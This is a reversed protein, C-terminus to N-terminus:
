GVAFSYISDSTAKPGNQKQHRKNLLELEALSGIQSCMLASLQSDDLHPFRYRLVELAEGEDEETDDWADLEQDWYGALATKRTETIPKGVGVGARHLCADCSFVGSDPWVENLRYLRERLGHSNRSIGLLHVRHPIAPPLNAMDKLLSAPFASANSPIAVGDVPRNLHKLAESAFDSPSRVGLQLPLLVEHFLGVAALVLNGWQRLAKLSSEQCGVVDPAIFSVRTTAAEAIAKYVRCVKKWPIADPNTRYLFVGSDVLLEGGDRVYACARELAPGGTESAAICMPAGARSFGDWIAPSLVGSAYHKVGRDLSEEYFGFLDDASQNGVLQTSRRAPSHHM